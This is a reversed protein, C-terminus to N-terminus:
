KVYEFAGTFIFIYLADGRELCDPVAPVYRKFLNFLELEDM